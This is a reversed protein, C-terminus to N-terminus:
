DTLDEETLGLERVVEEFSHTVPNAQHEKMAEMYAILDEKDEELEARVRPDQEADIKAQMAAIEEKLGAWEDEDEVEILDHEVFNATGNEIDRVIKKLHNMNSESYFPDKSKSM